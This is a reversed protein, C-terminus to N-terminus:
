AVAIALAILFGGYGGELWLSGYELRGGAHLLNKVGHLSLLKDRTLGDPKQWGM